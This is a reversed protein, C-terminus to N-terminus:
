IACAPTSNMKRYYYNFESVVNLNAIQKEVSNKVNGLFVYFAVLLGTRGDYETPYFVTPSAM